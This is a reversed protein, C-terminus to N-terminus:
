PRLGDIFVRLVRAEDGLRERNIPRLGTNALTAIGHAMSWAAAAIDTTDQRGAATAVRGAGLELWGYARAAAILYADDPEFVDCRFMLDFHGRHERAFAVYALGQRWFADFPDETPDSPEAAELADSFLEFGETALALLLGTKDGFHHAPAAHSVGARRSVERLSWSFPGVDGVLDATVALLASRLDGHHYQRPPTSM